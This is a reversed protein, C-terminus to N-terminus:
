VIFGNTRLLALADNSLRIINGSQDVHILYEGQLYQAKHITRFNKLANKYAPDGVVGTARSMNLISTKSKREIQKKANVFSYGSEIWFNLIGAWSSYKSSDWKEDNSEFKNTGLVILLFLTGQRKNGPDINYKKIGDEIFTKPTKLYSYYLQLILNLEKKALERSKTVIATAEKRLEVNNSYFYELTAFMKFNAM